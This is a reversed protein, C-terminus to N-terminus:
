ATDAKGIGVTELDRELKALIQDAREPDDPLARRAARIAARTLESENVPGPEVLRSTSSRRPRM